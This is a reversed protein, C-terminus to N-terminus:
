VQPGGKLQLAANAPEVRCRDLLKIIDERDILVRKGVKYFPVSRRFVQQRWWSISMGSIEAATRLDIKHNM